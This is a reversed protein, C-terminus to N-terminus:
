GPTRCVVDATDRVQMTGGSAGSYFEPMRSSIRSVPKALRWDYIISFALVRPIYDRTEFYPLTDVWIAPDDTRRDKMWREVANPGANYAGSALVPNGSFRDMLERLYTTGLEVNESAQMLQSSGTYNISHRRALQEATKPMLQMLGMAGAPSIADEAMASESRMLGLVWAPDLQRQRAQTEVLAAYDLPFRWDYWRLDGSNGLAFIAMDPWREEVALAAAVRLGANDLGKVALQWEGRAWNPIGAKRLEIARRFGPQERLGTVELPDVGPEQPCITYPLDLKDASLFGYYSAELSLEALLERALELDGTAYRARAVWYRWGSDDKQEAPMSEIVLMLGEWDARSLYFRAWWELLKGDRYSDPVSRVRAPTDDVGAVASWLAVERLIGARVEEPWSFRSEIAQYTQWARDPDSRALRRLGYSIIERSKDGNQWSRSQDLRRYGSRDQQYWREVWVRDQEGLYRALYLILRPQRADMARRIREWALSPTIGGQQKLWSFVPDCADPQSKGVAWLAQAVPALGETQGREIRAQAFYCQVETDSSGNAYTLLSDWQSREGLTRLWAKRLGGTFAWDEHDELFSAMEQASVQARRNRFDEYELYPYLLYDKLGPLLREFEQRQGGAAAKWARSFDERQSADQNEDAMLLSSTVIVIAYLL